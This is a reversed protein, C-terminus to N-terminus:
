DESPTPREAQPEAGSLRANPTLHTASSQDAELWSYIISERKELEAIQQKLDAKELRVMELMKRYDIMVRGERLAKWINM